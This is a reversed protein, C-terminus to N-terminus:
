RDLAITQYYRECYIELHRKLGKKNFGEDECFPCTIDAGSVDTQQTETYADIATMIEEIDQEDYLSCRIKDKLEEKTMVEIQNLEEYLIM